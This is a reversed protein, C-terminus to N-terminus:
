VGGVWRVGHGERVDPPQWRGIMRELVEDPIPDDRGANRERLVQEPAEVHVVHVEAEYDLFLGILAQRRGRDLNTADWVFDRKARLHKRAREKAIQAVRGQDDTPRVRLEVILADMSVVPLQPLHERVWHTKGSAPLGCALTVTCRPEFHPEYFPNRDNKRFYAVRAHASPFPFPVDLCGMRTAEDRYFEIRELQADTDATTKGKADCRALLALWRLPVLQSIGLLDREFRKPQRKHTSKAWYPVSHHRVLACVRERAAPDIGMGWLLRRTMRTGTKAHGVSSITGDQEIKTTPPKGLDHLLGAAFLEARPQAPLARWAPDDIKAQCVLRTHTWVDGEPHHRPDQPCDSLPRLWAFRHLLDDWAVTWGPPHPCGLDELSM